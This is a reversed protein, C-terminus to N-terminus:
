SRSGVLESWIDPHSIDVWRLQDVGAGSLTGMEALTTGVTRGRMETAMLVRWCQEHKRCKCEWGRPYLMEQEQANVM